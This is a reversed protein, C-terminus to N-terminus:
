RGLWSAVVLSGLCIVTLVVMTTSKAQPKRKLLVGLAVCTTFWILTEHAAIFKLM